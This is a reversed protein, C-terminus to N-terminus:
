RVKFETEHPPGSLSDAFNCVLSGLFHRSSKLPQRASKLSSGALELCGTLLAGHDAGQENPQGNDERESCEKSSGRCNKLSVFRLPLCVEDFHLKKSHV